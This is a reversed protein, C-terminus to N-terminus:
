ERKNVALAVKNYGDNPRVNWFREIHPGISDYGVCWTQMLEAVRSEQSVTLMGDPKWWTVANEFYSRKPSKVIDALYAVVREDTFMSMAVRALFKDDRFNGALSREVNADKWKKYERYLEARCWPIGVVGKPSEERDDDLSLDVRLRM